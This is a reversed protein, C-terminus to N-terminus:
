NKINKLIFAKIKVDKQIFIQEFKTRYKSLDCDPHLGWLDNTHFELAFFPTNSIVDMIWDAYGQHDTKIYFKKGPGLIDHAEDLFKPSILRKKHHRSKPWPDPFFLNIAEVENKGFIFKIREGKARLYRFNKTPHNALKKALQYTRKFRYDIGVFNVHPNDKCYDWMFDGYGSGIELILPAERFFVSSNWNERYNEAEKDRLVFDSYALLRNHYPNNSTYSFKESYTIDVM